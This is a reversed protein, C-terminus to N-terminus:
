ARAEKVIARAEKEIRETGASLIALAEDTTDSNLFSEMTDGAAIEHISFHTNISVRDTYGPGHDVVFFVEGDDIRLVQYVDLWEPNSMMPSGLMTDIAHAEENSLPNVILNPYSPNM